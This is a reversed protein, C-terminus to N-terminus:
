FRIGKKALEDKFLDLMAISMTTSIRATDLSSFGTGQYIPALMIQVAPDCTVPVVEYHVVYVVGGHKESISMTALEGKGADSTNFVFNGLIDDRSSGDHDFLTVSVRDRRPDVGFIYPVVRCNVGELRAPVGPSFRDTYEGFSPFFAAEHGRETSLSMYLDDADDRAEDIAWILAPLKEAVASTGKASAGGAVLLAQLRPDKSKSGAESVGDGVAAYYASAIGLISENVDNDTGSSVMYPLLANMVVVSCQQAASAQPLILSAAVLVAGKLCTCLTM